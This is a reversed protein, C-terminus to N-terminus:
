VQLQSGTQKIQSERVRKKGMIKKERKANKRDREGINIKGTQINFEREGERM